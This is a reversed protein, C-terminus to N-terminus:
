LNRGKLSHMEAASVNLRTVDDLLHAVSVDTTPDIQCLRPSPNATTSQAFFLVAITAVIAFFKM